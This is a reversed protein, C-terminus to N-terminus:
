WSKWKEPLFHRPRGPSRTDALSAPPRAGDACLRGCRRFPASRTWAPEITRRRSGGDAPLSFRAADARAPRRRHSFRTECSAGVRCKKPACHPVIVCRRRERGWLSPQSKGPIGFPAFMLHFQRGDPSTFLSIPLRRRLEYNARRPRPAPRSQLSTRRPSLPFRHSDGFNYNACNTIGFPALM